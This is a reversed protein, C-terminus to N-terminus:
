EFLVAGIIPVARRAYVFWNNKSCLVHLLVANMKNVAEEISAIVADDPSLKEIKATRLGEDPNVSMERIEDPNFLSYADRSKVTYPKAIRVYNVSDDGYSIKKLYLYGDKEYGLFDVAYEIKGTSLNRYEVSLEITKM